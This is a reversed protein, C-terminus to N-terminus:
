PRSLPFSRFAAPKFTVPHQKGKTLEKVRDSVYAELSHLYVAGDTSKVAKGSLAEVMALTFNGQRHENSELSLERGTSGCMVVVGSEDSLLDRVLVSSNSADLMMLVRGPIPFLSKKLQEASLCSSLLDKPDADNPLLVPTTKDCHGSFFFVAVDKQTMREGLWSLGKLIETRTASKNILLKVEISRFLPKSQIKFAQAIAEADKASYTLRLSEDEYEAIGVSLIYLTPLGVTIEPDTRKPGPDKASDSGRLDWVGSFDNKQQPTQQKGLKVRAFTRTEQAVYEALENPTLPKGKAAEGKWAQVVHYFFVSHKLEPHEFSEQGPSCSFLAVIGRLVDPVQPEALSKLNVRERSKGLKSQPDNRCADVLLLKRGAKCEELKKYVEDLGILTERKELETDVPCFYSRKEGAFQVGHGSFALIVEDEPKLDALLLDLEKRINKGTPLYRREQKDHLLVIHDKRFGSEILADNFATIDNRTFQLPRLETTDYEAVAVLLAYRTGKKSQAVAVNPALLSVVYVASVVVVSLLRRVSM